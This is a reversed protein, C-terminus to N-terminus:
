RMQIAGGPRNTPIEQIEAHNACNSRAARRCRADGQNASRSPAASVMRGDHSQRGDHAGHHIPAGIIQADFGYGHGPDAWIPQQYLGRDAPDAGRIDVIDLIAVQQWRLNETM